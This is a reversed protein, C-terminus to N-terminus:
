TTFGAIATATLKCQPHGSPHVTCWSYSPGYGGGEHVKVECNQNPRKDAIVAEIASLRQEVRAIWQAVTETKGESTM